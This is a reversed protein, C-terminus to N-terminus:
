TWRILVSEATLGPGFAALAGLAGPAPRRATMWEHLVFLVSASSQNGFRRLVDWSPGLDETALGLAQQLALLIRKGGPHLVFAQLDRLTAEGQRALQSFLEGVVGGLLGPIEKSLVSHFGDDRLDFGLAHTSNPITHCRTGVVTIPRPRLPAHAPAHAHGSVPHASTWAVPGAASGALESGTMLVAAAGDGFLASSILNDTSVDLPQFNLSPLEVAVVLVRGRPHGLLHDHARALAAAGAVCGLQTIPLRRVDRRLGLADILFADLSPLMIGTCSTVIVLDIQEPAIAGGALCARAVEVSLSLAREAYLRMTESLTRPTTLAALPLVGYRTEIGSADFYAMAAALRRGELPFRRAFADRIESQTAPFEPVAVAINTIQSL